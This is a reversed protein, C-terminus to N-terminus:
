KRPFIRWQTSEKNDRELSERDKSVDYLYEPPLERTLIEVWRNHGEVAKEETYYNEVTIREGNGYECHRITTAYSAYGHLVIGTGVIITGILLNGEYINKRFVRPKM